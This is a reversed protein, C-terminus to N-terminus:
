TNRCGILIQGGKMAIPTIVDVNEALRLQKIPELLTSSANAFSQM